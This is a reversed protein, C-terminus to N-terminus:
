GRRFAGKKKVFGRRGKTFTRIGGKKERLPYDAASLLGVERKLVYGKKIGESYGLEAEAYCREPM